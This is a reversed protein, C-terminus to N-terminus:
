PIYDNAIAIAILDWETVNAFVLHKEFSSLNPPSTQQLRITGYSATLVEWNM